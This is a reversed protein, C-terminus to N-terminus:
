TAAPAHSCLLKHGLMPEQQGLSYLSHGPWAARKAIREPQCIYGGGVSPLGETHILTPTDIGSPGSAAESARMPGCAATMTLSEITKASLKPISWPACSANFRALPRLEFLLCCGVCRRTDAAGHTGSIAFCTPNEGIMKWSEHHWFPKDYARWSLVPSSLLPAHGVHTALSGALRLNFVCATLPLM